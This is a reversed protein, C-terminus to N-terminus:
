PTDWTRTLPLRADIWSMLGTLAKEM